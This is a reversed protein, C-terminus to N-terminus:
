KMTAVIQQIEPAQCVNAPKNDTLKCITATLVNASGVAGRSIKSSPDSLASAIETASKGQLVGPDYTVGDLIYKGGFDIFPIGGSSESSVYPPRDYTDFIHQQAATPTDLPAYGDGQQKNSQTEVASFSVYPSSYTSGHFSFTQTNPFVDTSSSHTQRLGTFTGFRSLAIVMPWRQTACYPCYEAGLYFVEPKGNETLATANIKTPASSATGRGVQSSTAAPVNQVQKVLAAPAPGESTTATKGSHSMAAVVGAGGIVVVLAAIIWFGRGSRASRARRAASSKNYQSNKKRNPSPNKSGTRVSSVIGGNPFAAERRL